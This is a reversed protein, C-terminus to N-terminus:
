VEEADGTVEWDSLEGADLDDWQMDEVREKAEEPSYAEVYATGYFMTKIPVAYQKPKM